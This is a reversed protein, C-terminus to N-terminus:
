APFYVILIWLSVKGTSPHSNKKKPVVPFQWLADKSVVAGSQGPGSTSKKRREGAVVAQLASTEQQAASRGTGKWLVMWIVVMM